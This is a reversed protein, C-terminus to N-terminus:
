PCYDGGAKACLYANIPKPRRATGTGFVWDVVFNLKTYGCNDYCTPHDVFIYRGIETWSLPRGKLREQDTWQKALCRATCTNHVDGGPAYVRRCIGGVISSSSYADCSDAAKTSDSGQQTRTPTSASDASNGFPDTVNVPDGSGFGYKSFGGALGIPDQQTFRGGKGDYYRNRMYLLGSEDRKGTMLSGMWGKSSAWTDPDFHVTLEDGPWDVYQSYNYGATDTGAYYQGRFTAHPVLTLTSRQVLLPADVGLGHTYGVIGYHAEGGAVGFAESELQTSTRKLGGPQRSEYLINSGDWIYREIASRTVTDSVASDGMSRLLVRRGLADYRYEELRRRTTRSQDDGSKSLARLQSAADFYQRTGYHTETGLTNAAVEDQHTWATFKTRGAADYNYRMQDVVDITDSVPQWRSDISALLDTTTWVTRQM